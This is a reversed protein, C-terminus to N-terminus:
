LNRPSDARVFAGADFFIGAWIREPVGLHPPVTADAFRLSLRLGDVKAAYRARGTNLTPAMEFSSGIVRSEGHDFRAGDDRRLVYSGDAITLEWRGGRGGLDHEIIADAHSSWGIAELHRAIGDVTWTHESVWRGTLGSLREALVRRARLLVIKAAGETCGLMAAVVAIPQDELHHLRIAAAHRDPLQLLAAVLDVDPAPLDRPPAISAELRARDRDRQARRAGMRVAVKRVWAEPRDLDRVVDWRQRAVLLAEQAVDEADPGLRPRVGRAVRDFADAYFAAFQEDDARVSM